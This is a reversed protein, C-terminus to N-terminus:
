SARLVDVPAIQSARLAPALAAIGAVALLTLAAIIVTGPDGPAVGFPLAAVPGSERTNTHHGRGATGDGDVSRHPGHRSRGSRPTGNPREGRHVPQARTPLRVAGATRLHHAGPIRPTLMSRRVQSAWSPRQGVSRSLWGRAPSTSTGTRPLTSQTRPTSSLHDARPWVPGRGLAEQLRGGRQDSDSGVAPEDASDFPSPRGRPSLVSTRTVRSLTRM